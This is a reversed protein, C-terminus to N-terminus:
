VLKKWLMLDGAIQPLFQKKTLIFKSWKRTWKHTPRYITKHNFLNIKNLRIRNLQNCKFYAYFNFLTVDVLNQCVGSILSSRVRARISSVSTRVHVFVFVSKWSNNSMVFVLESFDYIVSSSCEHAKITRIAQSITFMVHFALM